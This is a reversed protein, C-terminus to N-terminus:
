MLSIPDVCISISSQSSPPPLATAARELEAPRGYKVLLHWRYLGRLRFLPAPAPGLVTIGDAPALARATEAATTTAQQENPSTVTLLALRAFPPYRGDRRQALEWVAFGRYDHRAVHELVPHGPIRTQVLVRGPQGGRGARGAMQHLLQYAREGARFDPFGLIDDINVIGVLTVRPFHHGKAIMQTGIMIRAEGDHFMKLLSYQAGKRSTTDADMRLVPEEPLLRRVEQELQQVGWGRPMLMVHRCQPCQQDLRRTYGCYHCLLRNDKRHLTLSVSCNHCHMITGCSGCQVCPALGRRNLLLMAQGGGAICEQLARALQASIIGFPSAQQTLNVIEIAPMVAGAARVTLESLTFKGTIAKHYTEISPTASGLIVAAGHARARVIAVDRAHYNPRCDQQKYSQDQEEDVVVLGLDDLPAFVASRTGVVVRYRKERILRWADFREGGSMESHLVATEGLAHKVRSVMQHTLGIEPVLILVQRGAALAETAARLYLETKGSATVGLLVRVSFVRRGIDRAVARRFQEQEATLSIVPTEGALDPPDPLRDVTRTEWAALGLSVLRRAADRANALEAPPLIRREQLLRWLKMQAPARRNAFEGDRVALWQQQKVATRAKQWVHYMGVLGAGRLRELDGASRRGFKRVLFDYSASRHGRLFEVLGPDAGPPVEVESLRENAFVTKVLRADMGPPLAARIAEGWGCRYYGSIWRTLDLLEPSLVPEPDLAELVPKLTRGSGNGSGTVWGIRQGSGFPVRVRVGPRVATALEAPVEYSFPAAGPLAIAVDVRM